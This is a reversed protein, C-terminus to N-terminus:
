EPLGPTANVSLERRQRAEDAMSLAPAAIPPAGDPKSSSTGPSAVPPPPSAIRPTSASASKVQDKKSFVIVPASSGATTRKVEVTEQRAPAFQSMYIEATRLPIVRGDPPDALRGTAADAERRLKMRILPLIDSLRLNSDRMTARIAAAHDRFFARTSIDKVRPPMRRLANLFDQDM